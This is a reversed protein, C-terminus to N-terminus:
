GQDFKPSVSLIGCTLKDFRIALMEPSTQPFAPQEYLYTFPGSIGTIMPDITTSEYSMPRSALRSAWADYDPTVSPLRPMQTVDLMDEEEVFLDDMSIPFSFPSPMFDFIGAEFDTIDSTPLNVDLDDIADTPLFEDELPAELNPSDDEVQQSGSPMCNTVVDTPSNKEAQLQQLDLLAPDINIDEEPPTFVQRTSSLLGQDTPAKDNHETTTTSGELPHNTHLPSVVPSSALM